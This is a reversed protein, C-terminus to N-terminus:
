KLSCMGELISYHKDFDKNNMGLHMIFLIKM